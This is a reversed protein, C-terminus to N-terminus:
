VPTRAAVRRPVNSVECIAILDDPVTGDLAEGVNHKQEIYRGLLAVKAGIREFFLLAEVADSDSEFFAAPLYPQM